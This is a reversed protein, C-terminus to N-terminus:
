EGWFHVLCVRGDQLLIFCVKKSFRAQILPLLNQAEEYSIKLPVGLSITKPDM